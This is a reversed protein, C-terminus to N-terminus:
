TRHANSWEEWYAAALGRLQELSYTASSEDLVEVGDACLTLEGGSYPYGPDAQNCTIQISGAL